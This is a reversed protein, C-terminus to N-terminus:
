LEFEYNIMSLVAEGATECRLIRKGLTVLNIGLNSILEAESDSFGGEPGIIYAISEANKNQTLVNKLTVDEANEYPVFFLGYNKAESVADSLTVFDAIEPIIGRGSQKAAAECVARWREKKKERDKKSDLKVVCRASICPIIKSIGLETCKQIIYEMKSAKPLCQYLVTKVPSEAATRAKDEIRGSVSSNYEEVRVKYDTGDGDSVTILDGKKVRLVKILHRANEGDIIIKDDFINKKDVFFKPM